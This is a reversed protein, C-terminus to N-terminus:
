NLRTLITLHHLRCDNLWHKYAVLAFTPPNRVSTMNLKGHVGLEDSHVEVVYNRGHVSGNWSAGTTGWTGSSGAGETRIRAAGEESDIAGVEYSEVSGDAFSFYLKASVPAKIGPVSDDTALSFVVTVSENSKRTFTLWTRLM